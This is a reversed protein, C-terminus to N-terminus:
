RLFWVHYGHMMHNDNITCILLILIDGPTKKLTLIKIKWTTLPSFTLFIDFIETLRVKYKLFWIHDENITYMYTYFSLIELCKKENKEFNQYEPDSPPLYFPLCPWFPLQRVRYRLFQVDYSQSKQHM